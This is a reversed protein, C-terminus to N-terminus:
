GSGVYTLSLPRAVGAEEEEDEGEEEESEAKKQREPPAKKKWYNLYQRERIKLGGRMEKNGATATPRRAPADLIIEGDPPSASSM